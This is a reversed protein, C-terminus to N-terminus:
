FRIPASAARWKRAYPSSLTLITALLVVSKLIAWALHAGLVLGAFDGGSATGAQETSVSSRLLFVHWGVTESIALLSAFIFALHATWSPRYAWTTTAFLLIEIPVLALISTGQTTGSVWVVLAFVLTVISIIQAVVLLSTIERPRAIRKELSASTM